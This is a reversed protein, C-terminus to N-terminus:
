GPAARVRFVTFDYRIQQAVAPRSAASELWHALGGHYRAVPTVSLGPLAPPRAPHDYVLFVPRDPFHDLYSRVYGPVAAPGPPLLVSLEDTVLWLPSAFLSVPAACCYGPRQWLYVGQQGGSLGALQRTLGYTGGWEDHGRLPLSQHTQVGLVFGALLVAAVPGAWRRVGALFAVAVAALLLVGPVVTPVFRRGVWMFYASNRAHYAYLTLLGATVAVVLWGGPTWRRLLLVAIGGLMLLLGPWSFFWSLRELNREDLTRIVRDGYAAHDPGFVPRVVGLAFLGVVGALVCWGVRRQFPGSGWRPDLWGVARRLVPRLVAAGVAAALLVGILVTLRPLGNLRTYLGAPGYAQFLAYPLVALFGLAFCGVRADVRRLVWLAALGGAALLVLLLGDARDLFGVPVLIGAVLAPARWGTRLALLVGLVAGLYLVQALLESTPYKAQWVQLMNTALLLGAVWAAVLGGRGPGALRRGLVVALLVALVGLVPGTNAVAGYGRVEYSTALLAPWLHYFQPVITGAAADHVWIAPFRANTGQLAVPLGPTVLLRDVFEYSGTRAIEFAHMVYGGPDKDGAVYHFGPLMLWGALLGTGGLPLLGPLDAVIRPRGGGCWALAALAALLVATAPLVAALRHLGLHAAALSVLALMSVATVAALVSLEGLGVVGPEWRGRWWSVQRARGPGATTQVRLDTAVAGAPPDPDM